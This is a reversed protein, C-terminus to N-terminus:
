RLKAHGVVSRLKQQRAKGKSGCLYQITGFDGEQQNSSNKMAATARRQEPGNEAAVGGLQYEATHKLLQPLGGEFAAVVFKKVLLYLEPDGGLELVIMEAVSDPEQAVADDFLRAREKLLLAPDAAIAEFTAATQQMPLAMDFAHEVKNMKTM